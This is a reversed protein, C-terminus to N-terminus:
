RATTTEEYIVAGDVSLRVTVESGGTLPPKNTSAPRVGAREGARWRDPSQSNFPGTPGTKFGDAAFFPVPPQHALEAGDVAVTLNLASVDLTDGGEHTLTINGDGGVTLSLSASPTEDPAQVTLAAGVFVALVVTVGVLLITGVVPSVARNDAETARWDSTDPSM